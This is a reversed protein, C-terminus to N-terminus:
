RLGTFEQKFNAKIMPPAGGKIVPFCIIYATIADLSTLQTYCRKKESMRKGRREKEVATM